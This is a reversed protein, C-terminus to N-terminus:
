GAPGDAIRLAAVPDVGPRAAQIGSGAITRAIAETRVARVSHRASERAEAVVRNGQRREAGAAKVTRIVRLGGGLIGGLRGLSEQAQEQARAIPPTLLGVPIAIM